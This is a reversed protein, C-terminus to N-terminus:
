VNDVEIKAPAHKRTLAPKWKSQESTPLAAFKKRDVRTSKKIFSPLTEDGEGGLISDLTDQDWLWRDRYTVTMQVTGILPYVVPEEDPDGGPLYREIEAVTASELAKMEELRDRTESLTIALFALKKWKEDDVNLPTDEVHPEPEAERAKHDLSDWDSMSQGGTILTDQQSM